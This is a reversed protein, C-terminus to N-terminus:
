ETQEENATLKLLNKDSGSLASNKNKMFLDWETVLKARYETNHMLETMLVAMEHKTPETGKQTKYSEYFRDYSKIMLIATQANDYDNIYKRIFARMADSDMIESMDNFFPTAVSAKTSATAVAAKPAVKIPELRPCSLKGASMSRDVPELSM